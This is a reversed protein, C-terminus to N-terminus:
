KEVYVGQYNLWRDCCTILKDLWSVYFTHGKITAYKVDEDCTFCHGSLLKKLAPFLHFNSPVLDLSYLAHDMEWSFTELLNWTQQARSLHEFDFLLIVGDGFLRSTNKQHSRVLKVTHQLVKANVADINWSTWWCCV